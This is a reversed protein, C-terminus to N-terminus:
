GKITSYKKYKKVVVIREVIKAIAPSPEATAKTGVRFITPREKSIALTLPRNTFETLVIVVLM